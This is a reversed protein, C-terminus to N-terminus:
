RDRVSMDIVLEEPGNAPGLLDDRTALELLERVYAADQILPVDDSSSVGDRALVGSLDEPRLRTVTGQPPTLGLDALSGAKKVAHLKDFYLTTSEVDIRIRLIRGARKLAGTADVVVVWHGPAVASGNRGGDIRVVFPGIPTVGKALWAQVDPATTTTM